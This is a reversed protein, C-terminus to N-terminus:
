QAGGVCPAHAVRINCEEDEFSTWGMYLCETRKRLGEKGPGLSGDFDGPRREREERCYTLNSAQSKSMQVYKGGDLMACSDNVVFYNDSKPAACAAFIWEDDNPILYRVTDKDLTRLPVPPEGPKSGPLGQQFSDFVGNASLPEGKPGGKTIGSTTVPGLNLLQQPNLGSSELLQPASGDEQAPMLLVFARPDKDGLLSMLPFRGPSLPFTKSSLPPAGTAGCPATGLLALNTDTWALWFVSTSPQGAPRALVGAAYEDNLLPLCGAFPALSLDAQQAEGGEPSSASAVLMTPGPAIPKLEVLVSGRGLTQTGLKTHQITPSLSKLALDWREAPATIVRTKDPSFLSGGTDDADAAVPRVVLFDGADTDAPVAPICCAEDFPARRWIQAGQASASDKAYEGRWALAADRLTEHHSIVHGLVKPPLVYSYALCGAGSLVALALVGGLVYPWIRFHPPGFPPLGKGLPKSWNPPDLQEDSPSMAGGFSVFLTAM